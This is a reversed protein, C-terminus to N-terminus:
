HNSKAEPLLEDRVWKFRPEFELAKEYVEVVQRSTGVYEYSKALGVLSNLYLWRFHPQMDKEFLEVAKKYYEAAEQKSGGFTSPTYFRTNGKEMWATPNNSDAEVAKDVARYSRPGLRVASLPRLSIRFGLFAGELAKARSTYDPYLLLRELEDGGKELHHRAKSKEDLDLCFAIFGYRALLLDYLMTVRRRSEYYHEMEEITGEWLDMEGHIFAHYIKERFDSQSDQAYGAVPLAGIILLLIWTKKVGMM